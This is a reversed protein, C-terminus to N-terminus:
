YAQRITKMKKTFDFLLDLKFTKKRLIIALTISVALLFSNLALLFTRKSLYCKFALVFYSMVIAFKLRNLVQDLMKNKDYLQDKFYMVLMTANGAMKIFFYFLSTFVILPQYIGFVIVVYLIVCDYSYCYGFEVGDTELKRYQNRRITKLYKHSMEFSFGFRIWLHLLLLSNLFNFSSAQLLLIGYFTGTEYFHFNKLIQIPSFNGELFLEFISKATNLSFGPLIFMNVLLYAFSMRLAYVQFESHKTLKQWRGVVNIFYIMLFNLLFTIIPSLTSLVFKGFTSNFMSTSSTGIINNTILTGFGQIITAPTSVFIIIVILGVYLFARVGFYSPVHLDLNKLLIDSSDIMFSKTFNITSNMSKTLLKERLEPKVM